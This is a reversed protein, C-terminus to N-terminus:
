FAQGIGIYVEFGDEEGPQSVPVAVDLRIPGIGTDYRLGVGAGTHWDGTDGDPFMERGIYGADVFGVVSIADTAKVRAEASLGLFARGGVEAGSPLTVSLSQYPQGRVTGGGGSYFLFDAPAEELSAGSVSGLQGRVAFTFRDEAGVSMYARADLEARVGSDIGNVGYFPTVDANLYYGSTANLPNDRYDFTLGVPLTFMTYDRIGFADETHAQRLGLGFRYERQASAIRLIGVELTVQDSSFNVEDLSEIEGLAYFHTDENFTAPRDFRAGLRLDTGGTSGGIGSIEGEVRLREAGGLLNRHLWFASVGLGEQTSLEAGFGFRRPTQEVVQLLIDLSEDNNPTEAEILAVSRFAGTRRLRDASKDLEEPDFVSGTPLGAIQRIRRTRVDKNGTTVLDGFKLRPGPSIQVEADLEAKAHRAIIKQGALDAKAHGVDRWGEVAASAADRIPGTGAIQGSAFGEPLETGDALPAIKATGFRFQPGPEVSITVTNIQRPPAVPSLAAAERGDISIRVVPSFYGADFLAATLRRYDATASAVIDAPRQSAEKALLLSAGTLRDRLDEPARLQTEAAWGAQATLMFALASALGRM